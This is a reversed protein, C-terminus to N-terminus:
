SRGGRACWSLGDELRREIEAACERVALEHNIRRRLDPLLPGLTLLGARLTTTSFDELRM